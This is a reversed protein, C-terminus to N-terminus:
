KIQWQLTNGMIFCINLAFNEETKAVKPNQLYKTENVFMVYKQAM